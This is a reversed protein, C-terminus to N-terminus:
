LDWPTMNSQLLLGDVARNGAATTGAYFTPEGAAEIREVERLLRRALGNCRHDPRIKVDGVYGTMVPKGGVYSLRHAVSVCGVITGANEAVLTFGDGRCRCLAFFDPGRDIRLALDGQMPCSRTLQVLGASDSASARRVRVDVDDYLVNAAMGM